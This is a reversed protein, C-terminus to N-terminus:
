KATSRYRQQVFTKFKQCKSNVDCLKKHSKDKFTIKTIFRLM